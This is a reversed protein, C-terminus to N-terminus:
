NYKSYEEPNENYTKSDPLWYADRDIKIGRSKLIKIKVFEWFKWFIYVVLPMFLDAIFSGIHKQDTLPTNYIIDGSLEQYIIQFVLYTMSIGITLYLSKKPHQVNTSLYDTFILIWPVTHDAISFFLFWGSMDRSNKLPVWLVSWFVVVVITQTVTVCPSFHRLFNHIRSEKKNSSIENKASSKNEDNSDPLPHYFVALVFYFAVFMKNWVTFYRHAKFFKILNNNFLSGIWLSFAILM